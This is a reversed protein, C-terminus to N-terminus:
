STSFRASEVNRLRATGRVSNGEVLCNLIVCVKEQPLRVDAGFPTQRPGSFREGCQQCKWRRANNRGRGANVTEIKCDHCTVRFRAKKPRLACFSLPHWGQGPSQRSALGQLYNLSRVPSILTASRTPSSGVVRPKAPRREVLNIFCGATTHAVELQTGARLFSCLALLEPKAVASPQGKAKLIM